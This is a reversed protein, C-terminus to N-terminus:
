WSRRDQYDNSNALVPKGKEQLSSSWVKECWNWVSNALYVWNLFLPMILTNTPGFYAYSKPPQFFLWKFIIQWKILHLRHATIGPDSESYIQILITYRSWQSWIHVSDLPPIYRIGSSRFNELTRFIEQPNGPQIERVNFSFTLQMFMQSLCKLGYVNIKGKAWSCKSTGVAISLLVDTFNIKLIKLFYKLYQKFKGKCFSHTLEM